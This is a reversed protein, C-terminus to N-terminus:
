GCGALEHGFECGMMELTMAPTSSPSFFFSRCWFATSSYPSYVKPLSLLRENMRSDPVVNSATVGSSAAHPMVGVGTGAVAFGVDADADILIGVYRGNVIAGGSKGPSSM